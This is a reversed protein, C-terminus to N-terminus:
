HRFSPVELPCSSQRRYEHDSVLPV